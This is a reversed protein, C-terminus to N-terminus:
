TNNRTNSEGVHAINTYSAIESSTTRLDGAELKHVDDHGALRAFDELEKATVRLFNELRQASLEVKLRARLEPDQTTIGVPCRGTHCIRYQQCGAAILASTALAVADAGMALAKAIDASIRLGGTIVLSVEGAGREDLFRRARALAFLTPIGTADKVVKPAAGTAGARGDVTIFDPGAALAV